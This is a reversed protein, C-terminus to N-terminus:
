RCDIVTLASYLHKGNITQGDASDAIEIGVSFFSEPDRFTRHVVIPNPNLGDQWSEGVGEGTGSEMLGAFVKFHDSFGNKIRKEKRKKGDEGQSRVVDALDKQALYPPWKQKRNQKSDNDKKNEM